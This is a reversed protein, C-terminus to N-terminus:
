YPNGYGNYVEEDCAHIVFDRYHAEGCKECYINKGQPYFFARKGKISIGCEKCNGFKATIWRPDKSYHYM